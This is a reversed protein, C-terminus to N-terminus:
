DTFSFQSISCQNFDNLGIQKFTFTGNKIIMLDSTDQENYLTGWFSGKIKPIASSEIFEINDLQVFFSEETTSNVYRKESTNDQLVFLVHPQEVSTQYSGNIPYIGPGQDALMLLRFMNDSNVDTVGNSDQYGIIRFSEITQTPSIIQGYQCSFAQFCEDENLISPLWKVTDMEFSFTNAVFTQNETQTDDSNCSLIFALMFILYIPKLHTKKM